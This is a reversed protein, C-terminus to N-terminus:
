GVESVPQISIQDAYIEGLEIMEEVTRADLGPIILKDSFNEVPIEINTNFYVVTIM